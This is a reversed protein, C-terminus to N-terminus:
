KEVIKIKSNNKYLGYNLHNDSLLKILPCNDFNNKKSYFRKAHEVILAHYDQYIIVDVPLNKEFFSKIKFYDAKKDFFGLNSFIKKTYADVVFEPQNFAYLLISDATEPGIGKVALIDVRAPTKGNLSLFYDALAKLYAAKQNFYGTPKILEKLEIIQINRIANANLSKNKKLNKLALEVNTWATNQTLVAGICIEFRQSNNKPFSYDGPHYGKIDGSKNININNCSQLPWWGQPGYEKLLYKYIKLIDNMPYLTFYIIVRLM